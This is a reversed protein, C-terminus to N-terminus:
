RQASFPWSHPFEQCGHTIVGKHAVAKRCPQQCAKGAAHHAAIHHGPADAINGAADGVAHEPADPSRAIKLHHMAPLAEGGKDAGHDRGKGRGEDDADHAQPGLLAFIRDDAGQPGDAHGHAHQKDRARRAIIFVEHAIQEAINEHHPRCIQPDDRAKVQQHCCNDGQAVVLQQRDAEVLFEGADPPQADLQVIQQQQASM